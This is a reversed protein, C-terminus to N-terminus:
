IRYTCIYTLLDVHLKNLGGPPFTHQVTVPFESELSNLASYPVLWVNEFSPHINNFNFQQLHRDFEDTSLKVQQFDCCTGEEGSYASSTVKYFPSVNDCNEEIMKTIKGCCSHDQKNNILGVSRLEGECFHMALVPQIGAVLMTLLLIISVIRRM